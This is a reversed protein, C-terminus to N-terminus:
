RSKRLSRRASEQVLFISRNGETAALDASVAPVVMRGIWATLLHNGVTHSGNRELVTWDDTGGGLMRHEISWMLPELGAAMDFPEDGWDLLDVMASYLKESSLLRSRDSRYTETSMVQQILPGVLFGQTEFQSVMHTLQELDALEEGVLGRYFRFLAVAFRPDAAVM